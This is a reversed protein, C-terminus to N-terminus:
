KTVNENREKIVRIWEAQLLQYEGSEGYSDFGLDMVDQGMHFVEDSGSSFGCWRGSKYRFVWGLVCRCPDVMDFKTLNVKTPWDLGVNEDLWKAGAAVREPITM